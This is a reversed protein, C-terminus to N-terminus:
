RPLGLLREAAVTLLIQETGGAITLCRTNLFDYVAHDRVLGGGESVDMMYEALAQRYRVGILKRVSSQAGPDQGGVALQAIRQDLLAGTQAIVILRGLRDQQAADLDLEALVKLLEEMPNGLATGTAMAIRENALTTRALRWGDNVEGVVMEDPVFVNDLFVENFLSDGTIERLPRIEIGPSKMDVLFYTIGKHKPADPDTRALCVGWRAKHAASTWVKQGTLLWGGDGRVAKTRLSALDSGAGPESFLQCWLFEGRLTGPVFREIQEPTGHELITPAAWWGIVLDPRVTGAAAMEQDILLQEAPSAARGHPEPWHPAQLGAEALAAQRKEEPLAAIEAIAAAIETRQGEVETLDIGLRRRVGGQTLETVRRLWREAGGLFSGIAHARRLYLHADHEWTCGIGGLVQICDKVNAKAAAIGISAALAAAISLQDADSDAAARAADAAAVESQEARCLMEACLHKVAQFSGIPKGFQERVKAYDVATDLSWRTVGAAEAALVTAALEEVRQPSATIKTAPASTLVVRALPRSFDTADLTEIQVGDSESDVLLWTGGAPLLLVGGGAAGLVLPLVGSARSTESDFQADGDLALGAFREGAALQALLEPDSVVLTALATTAVPGPVLAKAAEEVMACLDEVSGGAGGHQEAIAVGFIGLEALRAFVPRWADPDGQEVERIATTGGPGAASNRAWDRVLARAAFQEDTVTAVM